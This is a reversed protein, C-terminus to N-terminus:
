FPVYESLAINDTQPADADTQHLSNSIGAVNLAFALDRAHQFQAVDDPDHSCVARFRAWDLALHIARLTSLPCTVTIIPDTM